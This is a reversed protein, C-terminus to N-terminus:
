FADAPHAFAHALTVVREPKSKLLDV